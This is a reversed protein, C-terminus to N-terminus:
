YHTLAKAKITDFEAQDIAGKGLLEQAKAIEEVGGGGERGAVARVHQDFHRQAAEARELQRTQMGDHQAILYILAGLFPLVILFIVWLAKTFGGIDGRRFVDSLIAVVVWIWLVWTFFIVITWFVDFFPYDAAFM